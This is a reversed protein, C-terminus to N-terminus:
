LLINRRKTGLYAETKKVGDLYAKTPLSSIEFSCQADSM